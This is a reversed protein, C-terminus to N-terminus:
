RGEGSYNQNSASTVEAALCKSFHQQRKPQCM